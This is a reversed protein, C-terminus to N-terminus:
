ILLGAHNGTGPPFRWQSKRANHRLDATFLPQDLSPLVNDLFTKQPDPTVSNLLSFALGLLGDTNEDSTLSESVKNAAEVAQQEVTLGGITVKDLYVDGSATSNDGYEVSWQSQPLKNSTSSMTPDYVEQGNVSSSPLGTSFVWLDSSGTDFNLNFVKPPTGISVPALYETDFDEPTATVNGTDRKSVARAVAAALDGPVPVGYKRYARALALPGNELYSPNRAQTVSFTGSGPRIPTVLALSTTIFAASLIAPLATM